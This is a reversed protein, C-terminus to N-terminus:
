AGALTYWSVYRGCAQSLPVTTEPVGARTAALTGLAVQRRRALRPLDGAVVEFTLPRGGSVVAGAPWYPGRRELVPPLTVDLGRARLTVPTPSVYQLSLLWRGPPLEIQQTSREGARMTVFNAGLGVLAKGTESRWATQPGLVPSPRTGAWGARASLDQLSPRRCDLRAGPAAREALIERDPTPGSRRWLVFSSTERVRHWNAAPAGLYDGRPAVIYEFRDLNGRDFSDFDVPTGQVFRKEPRHMFPVQANGVYGVVASLRAGRLGWFVYDDQGIFLTARGEVLPRLTALEDYHESPLVRAGLLALSTSLLCAVLFAAALAARALTPLRAARRERLASLRPLGAVLARGILLLTLPAAVVLAKADYYPTTFYRAQLYIALCAALAALVAVERLRAWWVVAYAALIITVGAIVEVYEPHVRFNDSLWVGLVQFPSIPRLINGGVAAGQAVDVIPDLVSGIRDLLPVAAVLLVAILLGLPIAVARTARLSPLRRRRVLAVIACVAGIAAPWVLGAVTYTVVTGGALVGALGIGRAREGLTGRLERLMLTFALVFLALIPEKFSAQVLYAAGLYPLGALVAVATRWGRSLDPLAALAATATLVPVALLLATFSTDVETGFATLTAALSHPGSPYGAGFFLHAPPPGTRLADALVLHGSLDGNDLVGLIGVRGNAAFPLLCLLLVLIAPPAVDGIPVPAPRTRLVVAVSLLALAGLVVRATMAHGPLRIAISAAILLGAFGIAPALPSWGRFGALRWVARGSVLSLLCVVATTLLLGLM